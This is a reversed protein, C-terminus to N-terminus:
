DIRGTRRASMLLDLRDALQRIDNSGQCSNTTSPELNSASNATAWQPRQKNSWRLARLANLIVLVDIGEQPIAGAVPTLLGAAGFGMGVISLM